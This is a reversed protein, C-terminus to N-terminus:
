GLGIEASPPASYDVTSRTWRPGGHCTACSVGPVVLGVQEFLQRGLMAAPTTAAVPARSSRVKSAMWAAIADQFADRQGSRAPLFNTVGPPTTMQLGNRAVSLNGRTVWAGSPTGPPGAVPGNNGVTLEFLT